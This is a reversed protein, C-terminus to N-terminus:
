AGEKDTVDNEIIRCGQEFALSFYHEVWPKSEDLSGRYTLASVHEAVTIAQPCQMGAHNVAAMAGAVLAARTGQPLGRFWKLTAQGAITPTPEAGYASQTSWVIIGLCLAASFLVAVLGGIVGWNVRTWRGAGGCPNCPEKFANSAVGVWSWGRGGCYCCKPM